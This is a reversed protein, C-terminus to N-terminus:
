GGDGDMDLYTVPFGNLRHSIMLDEAEEFSKFLAVDGNEETITTVKGNMQRTDVIIIFM